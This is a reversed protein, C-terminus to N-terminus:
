AQLGMFHIEFCRRLHSRARHLMVWLNTTSINLVKCIEGSNLDDIDRLAFARALRPPLEALCRTLADWFEKRELIRSPDDSWEKPGTVYSKWNGRHDFADETVEATQDPSDMAAERSSQRFHDMIKHKLISVLWTKESSKGAFRDRSQLAALFTEQVLDEAVQPDRSRFLAYRFLYDGYQDVWSEPDSSQTQEAM